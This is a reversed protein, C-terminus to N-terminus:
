RIYRAWIFVVAGTILAGLVARRAKRWVALFLVAAAAGAVVAVLATWQQDSPTWGLVTVDPFDIARRSV